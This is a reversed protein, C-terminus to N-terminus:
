QEERRVKLKIIKSVRNLLLVAITCITVTVITIVFIFIPVERVNVASLFKEFCFIIIRKIPEHICMITLSNIGLFKLIDSVGKVNILMSGLCCSGISGFVAGILFLLINGYKISAMNASNNLTVIITIVFSVLFLLTKYILNNEVFINKVNLEGYLAGIGYYLLTVGVVDLMYPLRFMKESNEYYFNGYILEIIGLALVIIYTYKKLKVYLLNFILSTVLMCPIFWLVANYVYGNSTCSALFLNLIPIFLSIDTQNRLFREIVIWYILTIIGWFFYPLMLRKIRNVSFNVIDKKSFKVYIYGSLIFFLPMHFNYIFGSIFENESVHGLVVLLIGIGKIIDLTSDRKTSM